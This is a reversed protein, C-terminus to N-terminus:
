IKYTLESLGLSTYIHWYVTGDNTEIIAQRRNMQVLAPKNDIPGLPIFQLSINKSIGFNEKLFIYIIIDQAFIAAM